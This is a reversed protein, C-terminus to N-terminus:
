RKGLPAAGATGAVNEQLHRPVKWNPDYSRGEAELAKLVEAETFIGKRVFDQAQKFPVETSGGIKIMMDEPAPVGHYRIVEPTMAMHIDTQTMSTAVRKEIEVKQAHAKAIRQERAHRERAQGITEGPNVKIHDGRAIAMQERKKAAVMEAAEETTTPAIEALRALEAAAEATVTPFQSM